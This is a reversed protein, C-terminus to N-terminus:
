SHTERRSRAPAGVCRGHWPAPADQGHRLMPMKGMDAARLATWPRSARAVKHGRIASHVVAKM